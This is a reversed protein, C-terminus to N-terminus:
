RNWQTGKFTVKSKKGERFEVIAYLVHPDFRYGNNRIDSWDLSHTYELERVVHVRICETEGVLKELYEKRMRGFYGKIDAPNAFYDLKEDDFYFQLKDDKAYEYPNPVRIGKYTKSEIKRGAEFLRKWDYKALRDLMHDFKSYNM